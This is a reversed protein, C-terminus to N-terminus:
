MMILILAKKITHKVSKMCEKAQSNRQHDYSTYHDARHENAQLVTQNYRIHFTHRCRFYNEQLNWIRCICDKSHVLYDEALSDAKKLPHGCISKDCAYVAGAQVM